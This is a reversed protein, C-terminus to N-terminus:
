EEEPLLSGKSLTAALAEVEEPAGPSALLSDLEPRPASVSLSTWLHARTEHRRERCKKPRRPFGPAM